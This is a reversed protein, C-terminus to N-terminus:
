SGKIEGNELAQVYWEYVSRLGDRLPITAKWGAKELRSVDLLKRPTGDKKTSDYRIEGAFGVVEGILAALEAITLDTGTGINVLGEEDYSRMLFLCADALDDVHLFERRPTGSGWVVVHDANGVKADHFKRM